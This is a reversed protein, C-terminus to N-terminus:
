RAARRARGGGTHPLSRDPMALPKWLEAPDIGLRQANGEALCVQAILAECRRRMAEIEQDRDRLMDNMSRREIEKPSLKGNRAQREAAAAIEADLRYKKLTKRNFNLHKAVALTSLPAEAPSLTEAALLYDRVAKRVHEELSPRAM